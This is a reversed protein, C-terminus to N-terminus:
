PAAGGAQQACYAALAAPDPGRVAAGLALAMLAIVVAYGLPRLVPRLHVDDGGPDRRLAVGLALALALQLSASAAVGARLPPPLGELGGLAVAGLLAVHTAVTAPWAWRRLRYFGVVSAALALALVVEDLHTWRNAMAAALLLQSDACALVLLAAVLGRWALSRHRSTDHAGELGREGLALLAAGCALAAAPFALPMLGPSGVTSLAGGILSSWWFARALLQPGVGRRRVLVLSAVLALAPVLAIELLDRRGLQPCMSGHIPHLAISAACIALAAGIAGTAIARRARLERLHRDLRAAFAPPPGGGAAATGDATAARARALVGAVRADSLDDAGPTSM